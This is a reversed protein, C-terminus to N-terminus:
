PRCAGEGPLEQAPQAGRVRRAATGPEADRRGALGAMRRRSRTRRVCRRTSRRMAAWAPPEHLHRGGRARRAQHRDAQGPRTQPRGGGAGQDSGEHAAPQLVAEEAGRHHGDERPEVLAPHVGPDLRPDVVHRLHRAPLGQRSRLAQRGADPRRQGGLDGRRDAPRLRSLGHRHPHRPAPAVDGASARGRLGRHEQWRKALMYEEDPELMPFKRIEELYRSLGGAGAVVSPLARTAM